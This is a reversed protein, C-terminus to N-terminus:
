KWKITFKTQGTVSKTADSGYLTVTYTSGKKHGTISEFTRHTTSAGSSDVYYYLILHLAEGYSDYGKVNITAGDNTEHETKYDEYSKTYVYSVLSCHLYCDIVSSTTKVGNVDSIVLQLYVVDKYLKNGKPVKNYDVEYSDYIVGSTYSKVPVTAATTADSRKGSYILQFFKSPLTTSKYLDKPKISESAGFYGFTSYSSKKISELYNNPVAYITFYTSKTNDGDVKANITYKTLSTVNPIIFQLGNGKETISVGEPSSSYIVKNLTADEPKIEAKSFTYTRGAYCLVEKKDISEPFNISTVPTYTLTIEVEKKFGNPAVAKLKVTEAKSNKATIKCSAGTSSSLTVLAPKDVSWAVNDAQAGSPQIKVITATVSNGPKVSTSSMQIDFSEVQTKKTVIIKCQATREVDEPAEKKHKLTVIAVGEKGEKTFVRGEDFDICDDGSVSWEVTYYSVIIPKYTYGLAVSRKERGTSLLSLSSGNTISLTNMLVVKATLEVSKPEIGNAGVKLTYNGSATVTAYWQHKEEDYNFSVKDSECSWVLRKQSVGDPEITVGTLAFPVNVIVDPYSEPVTIDTIDIETVEVTISASKGHSSATVTTSGSALGTLLGNKTIEAIEPNEVSWQVTITDLNQPNIVLLKKLNVDWGEEVQVSGKTFSLELNKFEDKKCASFVTALIITILLLTKTRMNNM